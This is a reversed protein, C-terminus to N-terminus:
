HPLGDLPTEGEGSETIKLGEVLANFPKRTSICLSSGKLVLNLCVMEVIQGLGNRHYRDSFKLCRLAVNAKESVRSDTLELWLKLNSLPDHRM